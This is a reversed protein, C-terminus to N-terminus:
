REHSKEGVRDGIRDLKALIIQHRLEAVHSADKIADIMKGNQELTKVITANQSLLLSSISSHEFKCADSQQRLHESHQALESPRGLKVQLYEMGISFLKYAIAACVSVISAVTALDTLTIAENIM